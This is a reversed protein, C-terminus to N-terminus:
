EVAERQSLRASIWAHLERESFYNNRGIKTPAPFRGKELLLYIQSRSIGVLARANKFSLLRDTQAPKEATEM